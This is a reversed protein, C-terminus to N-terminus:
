ANAVDKIQVNYSGAPIMWGNVGYSTDCMCKSGDTNTVFVLGHDGWDGSEKEIICAQAIADDYGMYQLCFSLFTAYEYCNGTCDHEYYKRAYEQRWDKGKPDQADDREVYESWAIAKYVELAAEDVDKSKGCNKDVFEKVEKDLTDDGSTFKGSALWPSEVGRNSSEAKKIAEQLSDVESKLTAIENNAKKEAKQAEVIKPKMVCHTAFVSIGASLIVAILLTIPPIGRRRPARRPERTVNRTSRTGEVQTRPRRSRTSSSDRRTRESTSARRTSPSDYRSSRSSSRSSSRTSRRERSRRSSDDYRDYM